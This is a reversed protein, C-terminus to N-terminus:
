AKGKGLWNVGAINLVFGSISHGPSTQAPDGSRTTADVQPGYRRSVGIRTGSYVASPTRADRTWCATSSPSASLRKPRSALSASRECVRVSSRRTDAWQPKRWLADAMTLKRQWDVASLRAMSSISPPLCPRPGTGNATMRRASRYDRGCPYSLLPETWRRSRARKTSASCRLPARDPLDLYLGVVDRVKDEFKPNNSIEFKEVRHPQVDYRQWVRQVM